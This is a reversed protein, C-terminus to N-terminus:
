SSREKNEDRGGFCCEGFLPPVCIFLPTVSQAISIGCSVCLCVCEYIVEEAKSFVFVILSTSFLQTHTHEKVLWPTEQLASM